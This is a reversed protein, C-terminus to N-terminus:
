SLGRRQKGVQLSGSDTMNRTQTSSRKASTSVPQKLSSPSSLVDGFEETLRQKNTHSFKEQRQLKLHALLQEALEGQEETLKTAMALLVERDSLHYHKKYFAVAEQAQEEISILKM